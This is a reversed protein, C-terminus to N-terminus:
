LKRALGRNCAALHALGKLLAVLGPYISRTQKTYPNRRMQFAQAMTGGLMQKHQPVPMPKALFDHLLCENQRETIDLVCVIWTVIGTLRARRHTVFLVM